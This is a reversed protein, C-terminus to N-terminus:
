WCSYDAPRCRCAELRRGFHLRCPTVLSAQQRSFKQEGIRDSVMGWLGAGILFGIFYCSNVAQPAWSIDCVLDFESIISRQRNCRCLACTLVCAPPQERCDCCGATCATSVSCSTCALLIRPGVPGASVKQDVAVGGAALRVRGAKPVGASRPVGQRRPGRVAVVAEGGPGHGYVGDGADTHGSCGV